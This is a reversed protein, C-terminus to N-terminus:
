DLNGTRFAELQKMYREIMENEQGTAYYSITITGDTNESVGHISLGMSNLKDVFLATRNNGLVIRTGYIDRRSLSTFKM